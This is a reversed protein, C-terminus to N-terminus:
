APSSGRNPVWIQGTRTSSLGVAWIAGGFIWTAKKRSMGHEDVFYAVVVELLSVASSWAAFIVLLFFLVAVITGGLM